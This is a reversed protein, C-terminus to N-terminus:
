QGSFVCTFLLPVFLPLSRRRTRLWISIQTDPFPFSFFFRQFLYVTGFTGLKVLRSFIGRRLQQQNKLHLYYTVDFIVLPSVGAM